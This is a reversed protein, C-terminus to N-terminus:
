SVYVGERTGASHIEDSHTISAARAKAKMDFARATM